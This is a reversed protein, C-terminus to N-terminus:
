LVTKYKHFNKFVNIYLKYTPVKNIKINHKYVKM